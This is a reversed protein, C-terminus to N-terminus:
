YDISKGHFGSRGMALRKPAFECVSKLLLPEDNTIFIAGPNGPLDFEKYVFLLLKMVQDSCDVALINTPIASAGTAAMAEIMWGQHRNKRVQYDIVGQWNGVKLLATRVQTHRVALKWRTKTRIVTERKNTVFDISSISIVLMM